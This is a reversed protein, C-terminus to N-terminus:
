AEILQLKKGPKEKNAPDEENIPEENDVQEAKSPQVVVPLDNTPVSPLNLRQQIQEEEIKQLEKQIEEEDEDTIKSSLLEEIENQYAIADATDEMLAEVKELSTEKNLENLIENGRSLGALVEKQVVAFEISQTLEELNLLQKDSKDLLQQQYKKKKLALLARRKDEKLIAAKAIETEKDIVLQIKKQYQKLRDRQIKLDLIARDQATVKNKTNKQGM